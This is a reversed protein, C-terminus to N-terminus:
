VTCAHIYMYIIYTAHLYMYVRVYMHTGGIPEEGSFGAYVTERQWISSMYMICTHEAIYTYM